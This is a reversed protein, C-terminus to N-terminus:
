LEGMFKKIRNRTSFRLRTIQGNIIMSAWGKTRDVAQGMQELTLGLGACKSIFQEILTTDSKNNM